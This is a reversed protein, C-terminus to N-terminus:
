YDLVDSHPFPNAYKLLVEAHCRKPSCWCVLDKGNLEEVLMNLFDPETDIRYQIYKEYSEIAEDRSSVKYQGESRELHTYPNGWKGPRGVYVADDPITDTKRNLIKPQKM